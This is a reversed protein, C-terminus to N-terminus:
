PARGGGGQRYLWRVQVSQFLLSRAESFVQIYIHKHMYKHTHVHTHTHTSTHPHRWSFVEEGQASTDIDDAIEVPGTRVCTVSSQAPDSFFDKSLRETIPRQFDSVYLEVGKVKPDDLREVRVIDKFLIGSAPIQGVTKRNSSDAPAAPGAVAAAAPLLAVASSFATRILQGRSPRHLHKPRHLAHGAGLLLLM